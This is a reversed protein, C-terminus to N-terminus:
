TKIAKGSDRSVGQATRAATGARPAVYIPNTLLEGSTGVAEVRYNLWEGSGAEHDVLELQMPTHGEIQRIVHGSRIVRLKTPHSQGDFASIRANVRIDGNASGKLTEGIMASAEKNSVRFEDLQLLVNQDGRGVAYARGMRIGDMVSARTRDAVQIVTYVQDLDKGADSTGHFAVEGIMTPFAEPGTTMKSQLLQDWVSGPAVVRRADQYLGGFGTYGRTLVLAEPHPETKITVTGLPGFSHQSFDRAETMSWFVLAGRELAKDILDQYPRYGVHADHFDYVPMKIPWANVTLGLGMAVLIIACGKRLRSRAGISEFSRSGDHKWLWAVPVLLLLPLGNALSLWNWVFSGSNGRAPLMEYDEAKELGIVLLNRQANHMTLNGNLLSGTWYYHPAVEVGPIIMLNPHRRQVAQIEELFRQVGYEMVSPFTVRYKLFGELPHFGYTYRLTFNESLILVDLQQQEARRALSELNLMGTSMTSHVHIAARLSLPGEEPMAASGTTVATLFMAGAWLVCTIVCRTRPM